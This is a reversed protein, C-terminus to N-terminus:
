DVKNERPQAGAVAQLQLQLPLPMWSLSVRDAHPVAPLLDGVVTHV